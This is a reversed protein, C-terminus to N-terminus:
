LRIMLQWRGPPGGDVWALALKLRSLLCRCGLVCLHWSAIASDRDGLKSRQTLQPSPVTVLCLDWPPLSLAHAPHVRLPSGFAGESTLCRWAAQPAAVVPRACAGTPAEAPIQHYNCTYPYVHACFM